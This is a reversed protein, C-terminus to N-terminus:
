VKHGEKPLDEIGNMHDPVFGVFIQVGVDLANEDIDFNVQHLGATIGKAENRIGLRFMAGPKEQMMYSFDEGGMGRKERPLVNAEGIVRRATKELRATVTPDNCVIPYYKVEEFVFSGGGSLATAECIAKIRRIIREDMEARVTRLTGFLTCHDCVVNNTEGGHISGINFIVPDRADIEKAIMMELSAYARVAMMIADVGTHQNAAHASKGYFHLRFGHSIANQEGPRIAISGVDYGGDCHLAVICDIDKMVGDEVMLKAGSPSYEEAAQFLVKVRCNIENRMEYLRKVTALAIATHADHGCAHMKGENQSRYPVDNAETIPLADIDARIGITFNTKEPNVTAVISSKGYEETYEVGITDLERRLLALTRDLDFGVEPYMHLERRIRSAYENM